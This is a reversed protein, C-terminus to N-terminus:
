FSTVRGRRLAIVTGALLNGSLVISTVDNTGNAYSSFGSGLELFHQGSQISTSLWDVVKVTGHAGRITADFTANTGNSASDVIAMSTISSTGITSGSSSTSFRVLATWAGANANLQLNISGNGVVPVGSIVYEYDADTSTGTITLSTANAGVTILLLDCRPKLAVSPTSGSTTENDVGSGNLSSLRNTIQQGTLPTILDAHATVSLHSSSDMVNQLELTNVAFGSQDNQQIITDAGFGGGVQIFNLATTGVTIPAQTTLIFTTGGFATGQTIAVLMGSSIPDSSRAWAGSAVVYIGDQSATSQGAVLERDGSNLALGDVTQTGSLTINSTAVGRVAVNGGGGVPPFTVWATGNFVWAGSSGANQVINGIAGPISAANPDLGAPIVQFQPQSVPITGLRHPAPMTGACGAGVVAVVLAALIGNRATTKM